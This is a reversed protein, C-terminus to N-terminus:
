EFQKFRGLFANYAIDKNQELQVMNSSQFQGHWVSKIKQNM